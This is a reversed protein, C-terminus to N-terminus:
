SVEFWEFYAFMIVREISFHLQLIYKLYYNTLYNIICFVDEREKQIVNIQHFLSKRVIICMVFCFNFEAVMNSANKAKRLCNKKEATKMRCVPSKFVNFDIFTTGCNLFMWSIITKFSDICAIIDM